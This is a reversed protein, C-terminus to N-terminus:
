KIKVKKTSSWSGYYKKSGVKKYARIRVYYTKKRKLGGTTMKSTKKSLYRVFTERKFQKHASVQMQYGNTTKDIKWKVSICKKKSSSVKSLTVKKPVVQITIKKTTAPYDEKAAATITITAQGYNKVTIKGSSSVTAVKKNSTKYTLKSGISSKANLKFAKSKYAVTKSSAIITQVKPAAPTISTTNTNSNNGTNTSGSTNDTGGINNTNENSETITASTTTTSAPNTPSATNKEKVTVNVTTVGAMYNGTQAAYVTITGTGAKKAIVDGTASVEFLESHDSSYSFAPSGDAKPSLTFSEGEKLTIDAVTITPSAKLVCCRMTKSDISSDYIYVTVIGANTGGLPSTTHYNYNSNDMEGDLSYYILYSIQNGVLQAKTGKTKAGTACMNGTYIHCHNSNMLRYTEIPIVPFLIAGTTGTADNLILLNSVEFGHEEFYNKAVTNAPNIKIQITEKYSDLWSPNTGLSTNEGYISITKLNDCNYWCEVPIEAVGNYFDISELASCNNYICSNLTKTSISSKTMSDCNMFVYKGVSESANPFSTLLTCEEFAAQGITKISNAYRLYDISKLNSCYAFAYDGISTLEGDMYNVEELSSCKYFSYSGITTLANPLNIIKLSTCGYFLGDIKEITQSLIVDNLATCERFAYQGINTVNDPLYVGTLSKCHEFASKGISEVTGSVWFEKLNICDCFAFNGISTIGNEISVSSIKSRYLEWPVPINVVTNTIISFVGYSYNDMAGSGSIVMNGDSYLHWKVTNGCSGSATLEAAQAKASFGLFLVFLFMFLTIRKKM